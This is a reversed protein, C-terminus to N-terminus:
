RMINLVIICYYNQIQAIFCLVISLVCYLVEAQLWFLLWREFTIDCEQSFLFAGISLYWHGCVFNNELCKSCELLCRYIIISTHFYYYCQSLKISINTFFSCSKVCFIDSFINDVITKFNTYSKM